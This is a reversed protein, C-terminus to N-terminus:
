RNMMAEGEVYATFLLQIAELDKNVAMYLSQVAYNMASAFPKKDDPIGTGWFPRRFAETMDDSVRFLENRLALVRATVEACQERYTKERVAPVNDQKPEPLPASAPLSALARVEMEILYDRAEPMREAPLQAYRAIKFHRNFRAWIESRARGQVARPFASLKADVLAHLESQLSAPLQGDLSSQASLLRRECEIFYRILETVPAPRRM